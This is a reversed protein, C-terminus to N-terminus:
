APKRGGPGTTDTLAQGMTTPLWATEGTAANITAPDSEKDGKVASM